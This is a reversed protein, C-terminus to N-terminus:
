QVHNMSSVKCLKAKSCDSMTPGKKGEGDYRPCRSCPNKEIENSKKSDFIFYLDKKKIM